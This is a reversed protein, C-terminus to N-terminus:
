EVDNSAGRGRKTEGYRKLSASRRGVGERGWREIVNYQKSHNREEM